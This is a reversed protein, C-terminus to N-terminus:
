VLTVNSSLYYKTLVLYIDLKTGLLNNTIFIITKTKVFDLFHKTQLTIYKITEMVYIIM